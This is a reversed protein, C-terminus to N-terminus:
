DWTRNWTGAGRLDDQSHHAQNHIGHRQDAQQPEVPKPEFSVKRSFALIQRILERAREAAGLIRKIDEPSAGGEQADDLALEAYGVIASLINNFDHAIGGALTGVAEMKQAHQLRSQLLKSETVDQVTSIMLNQEYLPINKAFIIRKNGNKTTAAIDDWVMRDPDGSMIDDLVRRKLQERYLPDPYVNRFFQRWAPWSRRPGVTYKRSNGTPM